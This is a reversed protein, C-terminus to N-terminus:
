RIARPTARGAAAAGKQAGPLARLPPREGWVDPNVRILYCFGLAQCTRALEMRGFSCDAPPPMKPASTAAAAM